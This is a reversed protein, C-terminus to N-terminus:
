VASRAVRRRQPLWICFGALVALGTAPEPIDGGHMAALVQGFSMGAILDAFEDIDDFDQDGDFDVDGAIDAEVFFSVFFSEPDTLGLSFEDIDAEDIIGDQNMDGRDFLGVFLSAGGAPGGGSAAANAYVPAFYIEDAGLTNVALFRDDGLSGATLVELFTGPEVVDADDVVVNLTGSLLAEGTVAVTDFETEGEVEIVLTGDDTQHYDGDVTIHGVSFGPSFTATDGNLASGVVVDGVITGTGQVIGGPEVSTLSSLVTGNNLELIGGKAVTVDVTAALSSGNGIGITLSEDDGAIRLAHVSAQGSNPFEPDFAIDIRQNEETQNMLDLVNTSNPASEGSWIEMDAWNSDSSVGLFENDAAFPVLRLRVLNLDDGNNEVNVEIALEPSVIGLNPSTIAAFNGNIEEGATIIVFESGADPVYDDIIPVDLQGALDVFGSVVLQDHETGPELGGIEIELIGDNEQTYDGDVEIIGPSQGPRILANNVLEGDIIGQGALIGGELSYFGVEIRGNNLNTQGDDQFFAEAAVTAEPGVELTANQRFQPVLLEAQDLKLVGGDRVDVINDVVTTSNAAGVFSGQVDLNEATLVAAGGEVLLQGTPYVDANGAVELWGKEVVHVLSGNAVLLSRVAPVNRAVQATGGNAVLARRDNKLDPVVLPNWNEANSWAGAAVTWKSDDIRELIVNDFSGDFGNDGIDFAFSEDATTEDGLRTFDSTADRFFHFLGSGDLTFTNDNAPAGTLNAADLFIELSGLGATYILDIHHLKGDDLNNGAQVVGLYWFDVNLQGNRLFVNLGGAQDGPCASCDLGFAPLSGDASFLPGHDDETLFDLSLQWSQDGGLPSWEGLAIDMGADPLGGPRPFGQPTVHLRGDFVDAGPLLVGDPTIGTNELPNRPNDFNFSAIIEGRAPLPAFIAAVALATPGAYRWFKAQLLFM